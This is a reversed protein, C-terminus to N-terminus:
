RDEEVEFPEACAGCLIPAEALTAKAVRIRRGCGCVCALLNRSRPGSGSHLELRRWLVLAAALEELQGAYAAATHDPITTASWGIPPQVTVDLGLERVQAARKVASEMRRTADRQQRKVEAPDIAQRRGALNLAAALLGAPIALPLQPWLFAGPAPYDIHAAGIQRLWGTYGAPPPVSRSAAQRHLQQCEILPTSPRPPGM